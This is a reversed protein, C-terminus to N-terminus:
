EPIIYMSDFRASAGTIGGVTLAVRVARDWPPLYEGNQEGGVDTWARGDPSVAFQLLYGRRATMRLHLRGGPAAPSDLTTLTQHNNDQRRWLEVQPGRLAVGIANKMDGFASLGVATGATLWATDVVAVATYNGSPPSRALVGSMMDIAQDAPVTLTLIGHAIRIGPKRGVPWQWGQTASIFEDSWAPPKALVQGGVGRRANITPWGDEGWTIPDLMGQRGVYVSDTVRYAHYMFYDRNLPGTVVSGHGPCKFAENDKMIPNLPNKEWGELLKKSRAVGV